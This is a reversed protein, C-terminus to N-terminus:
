RLNNLKPCDDLSLIRKGEELGLTIQPIRKFLSQCTEGSPNDLTRSSKSNWDKVYPPCCTRHIRSPDGGFEHLVGRSPDFDQLFIRSEAPRTKSPPNETDDWQVKCAEEFLMFMVGNYSPYDVLLTSYCCTATTRRSRDNERILVVKLHEEGHFVQIDNDWYSLTPVIPAVPGGMVSAWEIHQYCDVCCCEMVRRPRGNSMRILVDGCNCSIQKSSQDCREYIDDYMQKM